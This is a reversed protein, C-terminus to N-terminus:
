TARVLHLISAAVQQDGQDGNVVFNAQGYLPLRGEYLLRIRDWGHEVNALPRGSSSSLRQQVIEWPVQLYVIPGLQRMAKWNEMRGVIGGGTAVVMRREGVLSSLAHSELDRFCEEGDRAFIEAISCGALRVIEADLDIFRFGTMQALLRGVTTKGSGMFGILVINEAILAHEM